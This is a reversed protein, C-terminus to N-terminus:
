NYILAIKYFLFILIFFLNTKKEKSRAFEIKHTKRKIEKLYYQVSFEMNKMLGM